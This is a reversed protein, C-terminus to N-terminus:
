RRPRRLGLGTEGRPKYVNLVLVVVLVVLGVAPHLLDGGLTALRAPDSTRALEATRSVSPMHLVLVVASILTLGLSILVWYHRVLGWPTTLAIAVGTVLAGLALPVLVWWGLVDMTIWAARVTEPETGTAAVGLGLYALVAGLWGVSFGLHVALLAKRATPPLRHSATRSDTTRPATM